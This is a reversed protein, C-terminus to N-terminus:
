KKLVEKYINQLKRKEDDYTATEFPNVNDWYLAILAAALRDPRAKLSPDLSQKELAPLIMRKIKYGIACGLAALEKDIAEQVARVSEPSTDLM